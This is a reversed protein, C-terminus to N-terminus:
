IMHQDVITSWCMDVLVSCMTLFVSLYEDLVILAFKIVMKPAIAATPTVVIQVNTVGTWNKDPM